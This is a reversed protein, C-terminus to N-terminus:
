KQLEIKRQAILVSKIVTAGDMAGYTEKDVVVYPIHRPEALDKIQDVKHAVQPGIVIADCNDIESDLADAPIAKFTFDASNLKQSNEVTKKMSDMLMTTSLGANCCLIIRM